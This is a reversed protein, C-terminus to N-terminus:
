LHIAISETGKGGPCSYERIFIHITRTLVARESRHVNCTYQTYM